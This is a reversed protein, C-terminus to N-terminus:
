CLTKSLAVASLWELYMCSELWVWEAGALHPHPFQQRPKHLSGGANPGFQFVLGLCLWEAKVRQTFMGM